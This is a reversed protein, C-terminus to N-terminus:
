VAHAGCTYLCRANRYKIDTWGNQKILFLDNVSIQFLWYFCICCIFFIQSWSTPSFTLLLHCVVAKSKPWKFSNTSEPFFRNSLREIDKPAKHFAFRNNRRRPSISSSILLRFPLIKYFFDIVHFFQRHSDSILDMDKFFSQLLICCLVQWSMLHHGHISSTM